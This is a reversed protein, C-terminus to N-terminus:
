FYVYYVYYIMATAAVVATAARRPAAADIAHVRARALSAATRRSRAGCRRHQRRLRWCAIPRWYYCVRARHYIPGGINWSTAAAASSNCPADAVFPTARFGIIPKLTRLVAAVLAL